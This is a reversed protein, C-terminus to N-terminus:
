SSYKVELISPQRWIVSNCVLVTYEENRTGARAEERDGHLESADVFEYCV